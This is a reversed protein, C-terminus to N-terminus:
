FQYAVLRFALLKVVDVVRNQVLSFQAIARAQRDPVVESAEAASFFAAQFLLPTALGIKVEVLADLMQASVQVDTMKQFHDLDVANHFLGHETM